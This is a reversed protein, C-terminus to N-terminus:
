GWDAVGINGVGKSSGASGSVGGDLRCGIVAGEFGAERALTTAVNAGVIRSRHGATLTSYSGNTVAGWSYAGGTQSSCNVLSSHQSSMYFGPFGSVPYTGAAVNFYCAVGWCNALNVMTVGGFYFPYACSDAGCNSVSHFGNDGGSAYFGYNCCIAICSDFFSGDAGLVFGYTGRAPNADSSTWEPDNNKARCFSLRAEVSQVDFGTTKCLLANCFQFDCSGNNYGGAVSFGTYHRCVTVNRFQIYYGYGGVRIGAGTSHPGWGSADTTVVRPSVGPDPTDIGIDQFIMGGLARPYVGAVTGPTFQIADTTTGANWIVSGLAAYNYNSPREGVICGEGLLKIPKTIVLPATIKYKGFPLFVTAYYPLAEAATIAAQIATTDDTTGNGAASYPSAQVNLVPLGSDAEFTVGGSGSFTVDTRNSGPNDGATVGAGIFNLTPRLAIAVGEEAVTVVPPIVGPM